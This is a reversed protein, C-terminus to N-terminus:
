SGGDAVAGPEAIGGEGGVIIIEMADDCWNPLGARVAHFRITIEDAEVQRYIRFIWGPWRSRMEAVWTEIVSRAARVRDVGTLHLHNVFAERGVPDLWEFGHSSRLQRADFICGEVEILVM